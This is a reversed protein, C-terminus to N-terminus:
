SSCWCQRRVPAGCNWSVVITGVVGMFEGAEAGAHLACYYPYEGPLDFTLEWTEAFEIGELLEVEQGQLRGSNAFSTGDYSPGGAPDMVESNLV